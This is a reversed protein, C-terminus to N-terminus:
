TKNRKILALMVSASEQMAIIDGSPWDKRGPVRARITELAILWGSPQGLDVGEAVAGATTKKTRGSDSLAPFDDPFKKFLNGPAMFGGNAPDTCFDLAKQCAVQGASLIRKANSAYGKGGTGLAELGKALTEAAQAADAAGLAGLTLVKACFTKSFGRARTTAAIAAQAAAIAAAILSEPTEIKRTAM